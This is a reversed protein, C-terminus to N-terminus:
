GVFKVAVVESPTLVKRAARLNIVQWTAGAVFMAFFVGVVTTVIPAEPHAALPAGLPLRTLSEATGPIFHFFFSLSYAVTEVYTSARGFLQTKDAALALALVLLTLVGLVHPNGFGGHRFIFFGTLVTILTAWLYVRGANTRTGIVGYRVLAVIGAAVAFLGIATHFAGLVTLNFTSLFSM